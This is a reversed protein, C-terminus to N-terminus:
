PCKRSPFIDVPWIGGGSAIKNSLINVCEEGLALFPDDNSEARYGYIAQLTLGGAYSFLTTDTGFGFLSVFM